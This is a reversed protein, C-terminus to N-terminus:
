LDVERSDNSTSTSNNVVRPGTKTIKLIPKQGEPTRWSPMEIYKDNHFLDMMDARNKSMARQEFGTDISGLIKDNDSLDSIIRM